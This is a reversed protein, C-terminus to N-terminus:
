GDGVAATQVLIAREVLDQEFVAYRQRELSVEIMGTGLNSPGHIEVIADAPLSTIVGSREEAILPCLEIAILPTTISYRQM